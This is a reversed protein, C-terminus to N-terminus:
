VMFNAGSGKVLAEVHDAWKQLAMRKEDDYTYRDYVRGTGSGDGSVQNLGKSVVERRVKLSALGSAVTRRLDHTRMNPIGLIEKARNLARSPAQSNIHRGAKPSPFVFPSAKSLACANEILALAQTSLPVRHTRGNKIREAPIEWIAQELGLESKRMGAIEGIRQGTLLALRIMTCVEATIKAEELTTWLHIIEENSLIRERPKERIRKKVGLTPNVDLLDEALAWNYITRVLSLVRNAQYLAGRDVIIDITRIIDRKTVEGAKMNGLHPFLDHLLMREDERWSKKKVKAHRELWRNALSKFTDAERREKVEGAPDGGRAVDATIEAAKARADSLGFQPYPGITYRRRKGDSKRRYMVAWTKEGRPTVRLLLGKSKADRYEKRKDIPAKLGMIWRDTMNVSAM